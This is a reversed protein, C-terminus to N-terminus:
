LRDQYSPLQFFLVIAPSFGVSSLGYVGSYLTVCRGLRYETMTLEADGRKDQIRWASVVSAPETPSVTHEPLQDEFDFCSHGM